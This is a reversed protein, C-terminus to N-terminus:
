QCRAWAFYRLVSIDLITELVIHIYKWFSRINPFIHCNNADQSGCLRWCNTNGLFKNKQKPTLFFSITNRWCFERWYSSRSTAWQLKCIYKGLGWNLNWKFSKLPSKRLIEIKKADESELNEFITQDYCVVSWHFKTYDAKASKRCLYM